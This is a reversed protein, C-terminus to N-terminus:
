EWIVIARRCQEISTCNDSTCPGHGKIKAKLNVENELLVDGIHAARLSSLNKNYEKSGTLDTYAHIAIIRGDMEEQFERLRKMEDECLHPHDLNFYFTATDRSVIDPPSLTLNIFDHQQGTYNPEKDTTKEARKGCDSINYLSVEDFTVAALNIYHCGGKMRKCRRHIRRAQRDFEFDDVRSTILLHTDDSLATFVGEFYKYEGVEVEQLPFNFELYFSDEPSYELSRTCGRLGQIGITTNEMRGPDEVSRSVWIGFRYECGPKLPQNLSAAIQGDGLSNSTPHWVATLEMYCKGSKANNDSVGCYTRGHFICFKRWDPSEMLVRSIDERDRTEVDTNRYKSRLSGAKNEIAVEICNSYEEMGPNLIMNSGPCNQGQAKDTILGLGLVALLFYKLNYVTM